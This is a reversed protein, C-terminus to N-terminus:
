TKKCKQAFNVSFDASLPWLRRLDRGRRRSPAVCDGDRGRPPGPRRPPGPGGGWGRKRCRGLMLGSPRGCGARLVRKAAGTRCRQRHTQGFPFAPRRSGRRGVTTPRAAECLRTLHAGRGAHSLAHRTRTRPHAPPRRGPTHPHAAVAGLRAPIRRMLGPRTVRRAGASPISRHHAWM